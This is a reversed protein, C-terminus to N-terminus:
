NDPADLRLLQRLTSRYKTAMNYYILINLSASTSEALFSIMMLVVFMRRYIGFLSLEELAATGFLLACTPTFCVIFNTAIAVVMRALDEEKSSNSSKVAAKPPAPRTRSNDGRQRGASTVSKRWSAAKQLQVIIFITCLVVIVFAAVPQVVGCFTMVIKEMLVASRSTVPIVDLITANLHPYFVWAFKYSIYTVLFYPGITILAIVIMATLTFSSTIIRKVKSPAAICLCREISIFATICAVTRTTYARLAAVTLVSINIANFPLGSSDWFYPWYCLVAWICLAVSLLDSLALAILSINVTESFGLRVFVAVNLINGLLAFINVIQILPILVSLTYDFQQDNLIGSGLISQATDQKQAESKDSATATVVPPNERTQHVSVFDTDSSKNIDGM